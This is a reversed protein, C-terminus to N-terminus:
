RAALALDMAECDSESARRKRQRIGRALDRVCAGCDAGAGCRRSLQSVTSCGQEVMTDLDRDSVAHCLCVLV